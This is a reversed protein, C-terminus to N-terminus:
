VKGIRPHVIMAEVFALQTVSGSVTDAMSRDSMNSRKQSIIAVFSLTHIGAHLFVTTHSLIHSAHMNANAHANKHHMVVNLFCGLTESHMASSWMVLGLTIFWKNDNERDKQRQDQPAINGKHCLSWRELNQQDRSNCMKNKEVVGFSGQRPRHQPGFFDGPHDNWHTVDGEKVNDLWEGNSQVCWLQGSEKVHHLPKGNTEIRMPPETSGVVESAIDAVLAVNGPTVNAVLVVADKRTDDNRNGNGEKDVGNM